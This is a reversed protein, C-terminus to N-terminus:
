RGGDLVTEGIRVGAVGATLAAFANELKPIMGESVAGQQKLALYAELDLHPIVSLADEPNSLVGNKEFCYVLEVECERALASAVATAITDANTNLLQGQGDHTISCLVPIVQQQLLRLLLDADVREVDGVYGYDLAGVPRKRALIVNGDAGSLGLANDGLSQLGAVINKNLLGAYVMTVVELTAADTVRRGEVMVPEIGLQRSLESGKKGGGHVLIRAGKLESFDRLVKQLQRADDLLKGGIKWITVKQKMKM